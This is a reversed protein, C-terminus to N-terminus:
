RLRVPFVEYEMLGSFNKEWENQTVQATIFGERLRAYSKEGVVGAPGFASPKIQLCEVTFM